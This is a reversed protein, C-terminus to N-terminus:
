PEEKLTTENPESKLSSNLDLTSYLWSFRYVAISFTEEKLASIPPVFKSWGMLLNSLDLRILSSNGLCIKTNVSPPIDSAFYVHWDILSNEWLVRTWVKPNPLEASLYRTFSIALFPFPFNKKKFSTEDSFTFLSTIKARLFAVM